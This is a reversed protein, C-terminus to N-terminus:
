ARFTDWKQQRGVGTAEASLGLLKVIILANAHDGRDSLLSYVAAGLLRPPVRRRLRDLATIVLRNWVGSYRPESIGTQEQRTLIADVAERFKVGQSRLFLVTLADAADTHGIEKSEAIGHARLRPILWRREQDGAMRLLEGSSFTHDRPFRRELWDLAEERVLPAHELDPPIQPSFRPSALTSMGVRGNCITAGAVFSAELLVVYNQLRLM